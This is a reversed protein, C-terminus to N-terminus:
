REPEQQDRAHERTRYMVSAICRAMLTYDADQARRSAEMWEQRDLRRLDIRHGAREALRELFLLQTRGNGERFPHVYNVDGMIAGAHEAFTEANLWRLDHQAKIRRHINAMGTAIYHRSQFQSLGKSLDVTRVEGAWDYVDQFLHRHIARLHDLDFDGRPVGSCARLVVLRREVRDLRVADRIGLRNRLVTTGPHLYPDDNM